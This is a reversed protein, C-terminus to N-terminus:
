PARVLNARLEVTVVHCVGRVVVVGARSWARYGPRGLAVQYRGPRESAASRATMQNDSTFFLPRLSDSYTGDVVMGFASDALPVGSVSDSIAVVIGPREEQTCIVGPSSPEQRCSAVFLAACVLPSLNRM